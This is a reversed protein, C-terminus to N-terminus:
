PEDIFPEEDGRPEMNCPELIEADCLNCCGSYPHDWTPVLKFEFDREVEIKEDCYPCDKLELDM